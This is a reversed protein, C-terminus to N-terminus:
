ELNLYTKRFEVLEKAIIEDLGPIHHACFSQIEQTDGRDVLKEFYELVDAPMNAVIVANIRDEVRDLLDVKIQALVEADLNEFGKEAVLNSVFIELSGQENKKNQLM